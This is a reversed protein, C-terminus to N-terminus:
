GGLHAFNARRGLGAVGLVVGCHCFDHLYELLRSWGRPPGAGPVAAPWTRVGVAIGFAGSVAPEIELWRPWFGPRKHRPTNFAYPEPITTVMVQTLLPPYVFSLQVITRLPLQISPM